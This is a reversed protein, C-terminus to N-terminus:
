NLKSSLQSLCWLNFYIRMRKFFISGGSAHLPWFMSRVADGHVEWILTAGCPCSQNVISPPPVDQMFVFESGQCSRWLLQARGGSLALLIFTRFDTSAAHYYISYPWKLHHISWSSGKLPDVSVICVPWVSPLATSCHRKEDRFPRSRIIREMMQGLKTRDPFQAGVYCEKRLSPPM